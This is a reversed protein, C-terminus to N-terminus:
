AKLASLRAFNLNVLNDGGGFVGGVLLWSSLNPPLPSLTLATSLAGVLAVSSGGWEERRRERWASFKGDFKEVERSCFLFSLFLFTTSPSARPLKTEKRGQKWM